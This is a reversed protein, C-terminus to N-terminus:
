LSFSAKGRAARLLKASEPHGNEEALELPSKGNNDRLSPDAGHELLLRVGEAFGYQACQLLPTDGHCDKVNVSAGHELLLRMVALAATKDEETDPLAANHLATCGNNDARNTDAGAQLLMSVIETSNGSQTTQYLPTYGLENSANVNAGALLLLRIIEANNEICASLLATDGGPRRVHPNAGADLLAKVVATQNRATAHILPYFNYLEGDNDNPAILPMNVNVGQRLCQQVKPMDGEEIAAILAETLELRSCEQQQAYLYLHAGGIHVAIAVAATCLTRGWSQRLVCRLNAAYILTLLLLPIYVILQILSEPPLLGYTTNHMLLWQPLGAMIVGTLTNCATLVTAAALLRETRCIRGDKRTCLYIFFWAWILELYFSFSIPFIHGGQAMRAFVSLESVLAYVGLSLFARRWPCGLMYKGLLFVFLVIAHPLYRLVCFGYEGPNQYLIACLGAFSLVIVAYRIRQQKGRRLWLLAAFAGLLAFALNIIHPAGLGM